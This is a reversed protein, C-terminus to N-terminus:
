SIIDDDWIWPEDPETHIRQPQGMDLVSMMASFKISHPTHKGPERFGRQAVIHQHKM